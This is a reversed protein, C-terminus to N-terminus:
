IIFSPIIMSGMYNPVTTNWGWISFLGMSKSWKECPCLCGLISRCMSLIQRFHCCFFFVLCGNIIWSVTLKNTQPGTTQIGPIRRFPNSGNTSNHARQFLYSFIANKWDHSVFEIRTELDCQLMLELYWWKMSGLATSKQASGPRAKWAYPM